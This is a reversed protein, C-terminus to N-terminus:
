VHKFAKRSHGGCPQGLREQRLSLDNDMRKVTLPDGAERKRMQRIDQKIDEKGEM